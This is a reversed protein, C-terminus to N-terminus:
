TRQKSGPKRPKKTIAQGPIFPKRQKKTGETSIPPQARNALLQADTVSGCNVCRWLWIVLTNQAQDSYDTAVLLGGCRYCPIM